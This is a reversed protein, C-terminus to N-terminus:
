HEWIKIILDDTGKIVRHYVEKPIDYLKGQILEVPLKDDLQLKWGTGSIITIQRDRKDRHWILEDSDVDSSFTRTDGDDIYPKVM